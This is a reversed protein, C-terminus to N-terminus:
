KMAQEVAVSSYKKGLQPCEKKYTGIVPYQFRTPNTSSGTAYDFSAAGESPKGGAPFDIKDPWPNFFSTPLAPAPGLPAARM